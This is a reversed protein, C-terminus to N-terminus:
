GNFIRRMGFDRFNSTDIGLRQEILDRVKKEKKSPSQIYEHYKHGNEDVGWFEITYAKM